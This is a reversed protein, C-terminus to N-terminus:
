ADHIMRLPTVLEAYDQVKQFWSDFRAQDNHLVVWDPGNQLAFAYTNVHPPLTKLKPYRLEVELVYIAVQEASMDEFVTM